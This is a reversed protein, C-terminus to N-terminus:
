PVVPLSIHAPYSPGMHFTYEGKILNKEWRPYNSHSVILGIRHGKAFVTSLSWLDLTVKQPTEPNFFVKQLGEALLIEQGNPYIDTLLLSIDGESALSSVYLHAQIPGTVELDEQLPTTSFRLIDERNHLSSLDKPGTELFLNRGGLTPIPNKPDYTISLTSLLAPSTSLNGM